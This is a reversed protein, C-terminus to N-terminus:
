ELVGSGFGDGNGSGDGYGSGFGDGDGSGDGYGSGELITTMGFSSIQNCLETFTVKFELLERPGNQRNICEMKKKILLADIDRRMEILESRWRQCDDNLLELEEDTAEGHLEAEVVERYNKLETM